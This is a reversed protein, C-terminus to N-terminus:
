KGQCTVIPQREDLDDEHQRTRDPVASERIQQAKSPPQRSKLWSAKFLNIGYAEPDQGLLDSSLLHPPHPLFHAPYWAHGHRQLPQSLGCSPTQRASPLKSWNTKRAHIAADSLLLPTATRQIYGALTGGLGTTGKSDQELPFSRNSRQVSHAMATFDVEYFKAYILSNVKGTGLSLFFLPLFPFSFFSFSVHRQSSADHTAHSNAQQEKIIAGLAKHPKSSVDTYLLM